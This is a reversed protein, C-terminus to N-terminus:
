ANDHFFNLIQNCKRHPRTCNFHKRHYNRSMSWMLEAVQAPPDPLSSMVFHCLYFWIFAPSKYVRLVFEYCIWEQVFSKLPLEIHHLYFSWHLPIGFRLYSFKLQMYFIITKINKECYLWILPRNYALLKFPIYFERILRHFIIIKSSTFCRFCWIWILIIVCLRCFLRAKTRKFFHDQLITKVYIFFQFPFIVNLM